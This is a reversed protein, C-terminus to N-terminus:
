SNNRLTNNKDIKAFYGTLNGNKNKQLEIIVKQKNAIAFRKLEHLPDFFRDARFSFQEIPIYKRSVIRDEDDGWLLIVKKILPHEMESNRRKIYVKKRKFNIFSTKAELSILGLLLFAFFYFAKDLLAGFGGSAVVAIAILVLMLNVSLYFLADKDSLRYKTRYKSFDKM